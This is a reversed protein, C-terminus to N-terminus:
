PQGDRPFRRPGGLTVKGTWSPCRIAALAGRRLDRWRLSFDILTSIAVLSIAASLFWLTGPRALFYVALGGLGIVLTIRQIRKLTQTSSDALLAPQPNIPLDHLSQITTDM